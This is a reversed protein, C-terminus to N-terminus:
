RIFQKRALLERLSQAQRPLDARRTPDSGPDLRIRQASPRVDLAYNDSMSGLVALISRAQGAPLEAGSSGVVLMRVHGTRPDWRCSGDPFVTCAFDALPVADGDRAYEITVSDIIQGRQAVLPTGGSWRPGRPELWLLLAAGFTMAGVLLAVVKSNRTNAAM